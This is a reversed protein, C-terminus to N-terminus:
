PRSPGTAAPAPGPPASAARVVRLLTRADGFAGAKTIVSLGAPTRLHVVGPEAEGQVDLAVVGAALLVARATEGGTVVLTGAADLAPRLVAALGAAVAAARDPRVPEAPDPFAVVPRDAALEATIRAGAAAAPAPASPVPVALAPLEGTLTGRQAEAVETRSGICVLFPGAPGARDDPRGAPAPPGPLHHALGGSGVLLAPLGATAAVVRALDEDTVADVVVADTHPAAAALAAAAGGDRLTALGLAAVTLGAATLQEALPRREQHRAEVPEGDILVRGDRVTRGTAPFAPAVVALHRRGARGRLAALAAATEPGINGRLTSDIKKYVLTGPGARGVAAGVRAAADPGPLYRSDTDAAIVTADPWPAAADLVVTTRARAALAVASDAAGSLDDAVILVAPHANM